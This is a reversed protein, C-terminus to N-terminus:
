FNSGFWGKTITILKDLAFSLGKHVSEIYQIYNSLLKIRDELFDSV